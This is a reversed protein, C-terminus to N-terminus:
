KSEYKETEANEILIKTATGLSLATLPRDDYPTVIYYGGVYKFANPRDFLRSMDLDPLLDHLL